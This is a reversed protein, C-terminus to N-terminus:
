TLLRGFYYGCMLTLSPLLTELIPLASPMWISLIATIAILATLALGIYRRSFESAPSLKRRRSRTAQCKTCSHTTRTKAAPTTTKTRKTTTSTCM